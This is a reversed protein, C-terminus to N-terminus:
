GPDQRIDILYLQSAVCRLHKYLTSYMAFLLEMIVVNSMEIKMQSFM